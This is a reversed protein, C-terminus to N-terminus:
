RVKKFGQLFEFPPDVSEIIAKIKEVPMDDSKGFGTIKVKGEHNPDHKMDFVRISQLFEQVLEDPLNITVSIEM